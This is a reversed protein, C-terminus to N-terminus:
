QAHLGFEDDRRRGPSSPRTTTAFALSLQSGFCFSQSQSECCQPFIGPKVLKHYDHRRDDDYGPKTPFLEYVQHPHKGTMSKRKSELGKTPTVDSTADEM